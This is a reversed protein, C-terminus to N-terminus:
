FECIPGPMQSLSDLFVEGSSAARKARKSKQPDRKNEVSWAFLIYKKSYIKQQPGLELWSYLDGGFFAEGFFWLLPVDM